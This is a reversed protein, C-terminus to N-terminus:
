SEKEEDVLQANLPDMQLLDPISNVLNRCIKVRDGAKGFCQKDWAFLALKKNELKNKKSSVHSKGHFLLAKKVVDIM